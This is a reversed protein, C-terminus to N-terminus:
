DCQSTGQEGGGKVKNAGRQFSVPQGTERGLPLPLVRRDAVTPFDRATRVSDVPHVLSGAVDHSLASMQKIALTMASLANCWMVMRVLGRRAMTRLVMPLILLLATPPPTVELDVEAVEVSVEVSSHGARVLPLALRRAVIVVRLSLRATTVRTRTFVHM